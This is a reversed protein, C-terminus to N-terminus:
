RKPITQGEHALGLLYQASAHGQDAALRYWWIAEADDEPVGRGTQYMFGLRYQADADGDNAKEAVTRTDPMFFLASVGCLVAVLVLLRIHQSPKRKKQPNQPHTGNMSDHLNHEEPISGNVFPGGVECNATDPDSHVSATGSEGGTDDLHKKQKWGCEFLSDTEEAQTDFHPEPLGDAPREPAVPEDAAYTGDLLLAKAQAFEDATLADCEHLENLKRIEEVLNM